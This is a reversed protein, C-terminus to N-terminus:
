ANSYCPILNSLPLRGQTLFPAVKHINIIEIDQPVYKANENQYAISVVIMLISLIIQWMYYIEKNEYDECEAFEFIGEGDEKLAIMSYLDDASQNGLDHWGRFLHIIEMCVQYQTTKIQNKNKDLLEQM